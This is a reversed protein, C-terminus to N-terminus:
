RLFDVKKANLYFEDKPFLDTNVDRDDRKDNPGWQRIPEEKLWAIIEDANWGGAALYSRTSLLRQSLDEVSFPIPKDSGLLVGNVLVVYPFIQLFSAVTRQTPAWQVCIGGDDLHSRVERFYETSYLMGSHSADPPIADAEIVDYRQPDILLEHRADGLEREFRPDRLFANVASRPVDQDFKQMITFVPSVIEVIKVHHTAPNVGSAYPTGGSGQGIIMISRPDPHVLPGLAGLVGHIFLFPVRSNTRGNIYLLYADPMVKGGYNISTADRGSRMVTIGTRDEDVLAGHSLSAGHLRAWFAANTPFLIAAVALLGTLAAQSPTQAMRRIRAGTGEGRSKWVIAIAFALGIVAIIRLTGSTGIWELLLLGTVAGGTTNGLINFLQIIGVRNGVLTPDDHVAKQAMPFSMGGMFAPPFVLCGTVVLYATIAALRHWLGVTALHPKDVLWQELDFWGHAAWLIAMAVIAYLAIGAQFAYFTRRPNSIAGVVRAGYALGLADGILFIGLILSFAYANTQMLVGVVRFWVIELSIILFGSVFVLAAWIWVNRPYRGSVSGIEPSLGGRAASSAGTSALLAGVAVVFNLLVGFYVTVEFGFIGIIVFGSLLAGFGAGLTNVCYLLGIHFPATEVRDVIARSLLPLSMGMLLTPLLLALFVILLVLSASHAVALVHEFLFNYFLFPSAAAFAGIGLECLAFVQIARQCSLRDAFSAAWLSGIGLGFLFASVVLTAAVVDSGAFLALMRQWTTQYLLAAFGSFFFVAYLGILIRRRALEAAADHLVGEGTLM